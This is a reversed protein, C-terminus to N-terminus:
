EGNKKNKRSCMMRNMVRSNCQRRKVAQQEVSLDIKIQDEPAVIHSRRDQMACTHVSLAWDLSRRLNTSREARAIGLAARGSINENKVVICM